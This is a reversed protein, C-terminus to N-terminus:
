GAQHGTCMVSVDGGQEKAGANYKRWRSEEVIPALRNHISDLAERDFGYRRGTIRVIKIM